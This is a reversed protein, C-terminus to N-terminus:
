FLECPCCIKGGGLKRFRKALARFDPVNAQCGLATVEGLFFRSFVGRGCDRILIEGWRRGRDRGLSGARIGRVELGLGLRSPFARRSSPSERVSFQPTPAQRLSSPM